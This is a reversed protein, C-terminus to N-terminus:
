NFWSCISYLLVRFNRSIINSNTFKYKCEVHRSLIFCRNYSYKYSNTNSRWNSFCCFQYKGRGTVATVVPSTNSTSVTITNANGSTAGVVTGAGLWTRIASPSSCYRTYNDTSNNVRFAMAGSITSENAYNARLLRVNIDASGDRYAITSATAATTANSAVTFTTNGTQNATASMSGSLGLGSTDGNIQGNGVTPLSASTIYGAGNTIANNNLSINASGNFSVGAITRATQLVTATAANGNISGAITSSFTKTGGITQTGTTYVGNTVTAANGTTSGSSGSVNGTVNGVLAGTVTTITATPGTLTGTFTPNAIPLYPGGTVTGQPVSFSTSLTGGDQQTLTLTVTSTGSDTFTTIKNDYADNWETSNGGPATLGTWPRDQRVLCRVRLELLGMLM